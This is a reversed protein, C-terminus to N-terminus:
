RRLFCFPLRSIPTLRSLIKYTGAYTLRRPLSLQTAIDCRRNSYTGWTYRPVKAPLSISPSLIKHPCNLPCDPGVSTGAGRGRRSRYETAEKKRAGTTIHCPRSIPKPGVFFQAFGPGTSSFGLM